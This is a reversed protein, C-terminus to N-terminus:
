DGTSGGRAPPRGIRRMRRSLSAGPAQLEARDRRRRGIETRDGLNELLGQLVLFTDRGPDGGEEIEGALLLVVGALDGELPVDGLLHFLLCVDALDDVLEVGDVARSAGDPVEIRPHALASM